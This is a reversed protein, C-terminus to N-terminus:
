IYVSSARVTVAATTVSHGTGHLMATVSTNVLDPLIFLRGAETAHQGLVIRSADTAPFM